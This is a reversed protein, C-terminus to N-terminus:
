LFTYATKNSKGLLTILQIIKEKLLLFHLNSQTEYQWALPIASTM